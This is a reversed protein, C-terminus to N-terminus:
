LHVRLNGLVACFNGKRLRRHLNGRDGLILCGGLILAAGPGEEALLLASLLFQRLFLFRLPFVQQFICSLTEVRYEFLVGLAVGDLLHGSGESDFHHLVARLCELLILQEFIRGAGDFAEDIEAGLLDDLVFLLLFLHLLQLLLDLLLGLVYQWDLLILLLLLLGLLDLLLDRWLLWYLLWDLLACGLHDRGLLLSSRLGEVGLVLRADLRLHCILHAQAGHSRLRHM